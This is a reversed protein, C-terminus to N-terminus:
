SVASASDFAFRLNKAKKQVASVIEGDGAAPLFAGIAAVGAAGARAVVALQGETVGGIALVPTSGVARVISRLGAEGLLRAEHPKSATEFVTGAVLYDAARASVASDVAHVSRGVLWGGVLARAAGVGFSSETLHVGACGCALAVDARDNLVIRTSSGETIRLAARAFRALAGADLDKERIQVLDVEGAVAGEIQQLVLAVADAHPRGLADALRRRNTVLCLIPRSGKELPM